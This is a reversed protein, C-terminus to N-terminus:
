GIRLSRVEWSSSMSSSRFGVRNGFIASMVGAGVILIVFTVLATVLISGPVNRVLIKRYILSSAIMPRWEKPELKGKMRDPFAALGLALRCDDSNVKSRTVRDVWRLVKVHTNLGLVRSVDEVEQSLQSDYADM